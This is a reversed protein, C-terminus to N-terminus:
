KIWGEERAQAYDTDIWDHCERCLCFMKQGNTATPLYPGGAGTQWWHHWDTATGMYDHEFGYKWCMECLPEQGSRGQLIALAAFAAKKLASYIPSERKRRSSAKNLPTRKLPKQSRKLPTERKIYSRKM